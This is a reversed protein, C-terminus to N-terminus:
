AAKYRFMFIKKSLVYVHNSVINNYVVMDGGEQAITNGCKRCQRNKNIMTGIHLIQYLEREIAIKSATSNRPDPIRRYFGGVIPQPIEKQEVRCDGVGSGAVDELGDLGDMVFSDVSHLQGIVGELANDLVANFAEAMVTM